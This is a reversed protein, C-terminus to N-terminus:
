SAAHGCIYTLPFHSLHKRNSLRQRLNPRKKFATSKAMVSIVALLGKGPFLQTGAAFVALM